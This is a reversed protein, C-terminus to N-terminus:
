RSMDEMLYALKVFIFKHYEILLHFASRTHIWSVSESFDKPWIPYPYVTTLPMEHKFEVLSRPIHYFSTVLIASQFKNHYMWESTELANQQTTTAMYGLTIKERTEPSIDGLFLKPRANKNVGSILLKKGAGQDLLNIANQIRYGGGTWAVIADATPDSDTIRFSFVYLVFVGFGILWIPLALVIIYFILGLIKKM